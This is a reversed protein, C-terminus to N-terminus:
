AAPPSQSAPPASASPLIVNLAGALHDTGDITVITTIKGNAIPVPSAVLKLLLGYIPMQNRIADAYSQELLEAAWGSQAIIDGSPALVKASINAPKDGDTRLNVRLYIGLKPMIGKATPTPPPAGEVVLNDPFTGVITDQGSKEERIDECFICVASFKIM